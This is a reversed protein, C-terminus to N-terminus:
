PLLMSFHALDEQAKDYTQGERVTTRGVFQEMGRPSDQIEQVEGLEGGMSVFCETVHGSGEIGEMCVCRDEDFKPNTVIKIEWFKM